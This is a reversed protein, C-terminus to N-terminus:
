SAQTRCHAQAACGQGLVCSHQCWGQAHVLFGGIRWGGGGQVDLAVCPAWGGDRVAGPVLAAQAEGWVARPAEGGVRRLLSAFKLSHGPLREEARPEGSSLCDYCSALELTAQRVAAQIPEADCLLENALQRAIPILGRAEAGYCKLKPCRANPSLMNRTLNDLKSECPYIRYLAQIRQWLGSVRAEATVGPLWQLLYTFFQGLWDSGIGLDVVHLWDLRFMGSRVGPAFFLPSISLGRALMRRMLAWHDLRAARWPAHAHVIRITGPTAECRWCCGGTENHQPFRFIDKYM